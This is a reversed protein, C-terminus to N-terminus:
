CVYQVREDIIVTVNDVSVPSGQAHRNTSAVIVPMDM